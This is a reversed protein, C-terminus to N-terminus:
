FFILNQRIKIFKYVKLASFIFEPCITKKGENICLRNAESSLQKIYGKFFFLISYFLCNNRFISCNSIELILESFEQTSKLNPGLLEKIFSNLTAKPLSADDEM